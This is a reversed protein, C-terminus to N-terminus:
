VVCCQHPPPKAIQPVAIGDEVIAVRSGTTGRGWLVADSQVNKFNRETEHHSKLIISFIFSGHM